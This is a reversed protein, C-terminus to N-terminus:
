LGWGTLTPYIKTPHTYEGVAEEVAACRGLEDACCGTWERAGFRRWRKAGALLNPLHVRGGCGKGCGARGIMM